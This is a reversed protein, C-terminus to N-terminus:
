EDFSPPSGPVHVHQRKMAVIWDAPAIPPATQGRPIVLAVCSRCAGASDVLFDYHRLKTFRTPRALAGCVTVRRRRADSLNAMFDSRHRLAHRRGIALGLTFASECPAEPTATTRLGNARRYRYARQRCANSCYIRPRGPRYFRHAASGCVPCWWPEMLTGLPAIYLDHYPQIPPTTMHRDHRVPTVTQASEPGFGASPVAAKESTM